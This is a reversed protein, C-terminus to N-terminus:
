ENAGKLVNEIAWLPQLNTFHFCAAQGERTSLDFSVCPKIHDIHWSGYNDWSMGEKFKSQLYSKLEELSCGLHKLVSQSKWGKAVLEYFRNRLVISLRFKNDKHYRERRKENRYQRNEKEWNSCLQRVRNQNKIRYTRNYEATKEIRSVRYCRRTNRRGSEKRCNESCIKVNHYHPLFENGCISCQKSKEKM